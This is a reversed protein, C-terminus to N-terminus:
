GPATAKMASELRRARIEPWTQPRLTACISDILIMSDRTLARIDRVLSHLDTIPIPKVEGKPMPLPIRVVKGSAVAWGQHIFEHRKGMVAKARNCIGIVQRHLPGPHDRLKAEALNAVVEIRAIAAKPTFYIIHGLEDDLDLLAGLVDGLMIELASLEVTVLGIAEVHEPHDALPTKWEPWPIEPETM